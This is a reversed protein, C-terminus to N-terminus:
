GGIVFFLQIRRQSCVSFISFLILDLIFVIRGLVDLGQFKYPQESILLALGGTAM